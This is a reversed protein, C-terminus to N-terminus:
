IDDELVSTQTSGFAWLTFCLAVVHKLPFFVVFFGLFCDFLFVGCCGFIFSDGISHKERHDEINNGTDASTM